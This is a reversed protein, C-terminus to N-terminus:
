GPRASARRLREGLKWTSAADCEPLVMLFEEGGYRGVMDYPRIAHRM